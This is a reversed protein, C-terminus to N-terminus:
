QIRTTGKANAKAMPPILPDMYVTVTSRAVAALSESDAAAPDQLGRARLQSARPFVQGAVFLSFLATAFLILTCAQLKLMCTPEQCFVGVTEQAIAKMFLFGLIPGLVSYDKKLSLPGWSMSIEM